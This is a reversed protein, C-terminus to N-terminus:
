VSLNGSTLKAVEGAQATGATEIATESGFLEFHPGPAVRGQYHALKVGFVDPMPSSFTASLQPMNLTNGRTSQPAIAVYAAIESDTADVMEVHRARLAEVGPQLMWYGDTFKM